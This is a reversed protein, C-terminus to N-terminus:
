HYTRPSSINASIYPSRQVLSKASEEDVAFNTQNGRLIICPWYPICLAAIQPREPGMSASPAVCP